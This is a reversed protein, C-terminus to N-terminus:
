GWPRTDRRATLAATCTSCMPNVGRTSVARNWSRSLVNVKLGNTELLTSRCGGRCGPTEEDVRVKGVRYSPPELKSGLKFASRNWVKITFFIFLAKLKFGQKQESSAGTCCPCTSLAQSYRRRAWTLSTLTKCNTHTWSGSSPKIVWSFLTRHRSMPPFTQRTSHHSFHRM